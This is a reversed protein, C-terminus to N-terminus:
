RAQESKKKRMEVLDTYTFGILKLRNRIADRSLGFEKSTETLNHGELIFLAMGKTQTTIKHYDRM